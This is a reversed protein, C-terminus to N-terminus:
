SRTGQGDLWSLVEANKRYLLRDLGWPTVGLDEAVGVFFAELEEYPAEPDLALAAAVKKLRQDVAISQMFEPDRVDMWINRGYKPGIGKFGR